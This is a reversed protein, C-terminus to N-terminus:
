QRVSSRFEAEVEEPTAAAKAKGHVFVIPLRASMIGNVRNVASDDLAVLGVPAFRVSTARVVPIGKDSLDQALRAARQVAQLPCYRAAVVYVTDPYQGEVPPMHIFGNEDAIAKVSASANASQHQHWYQVLCAASTVILLLRLFKV